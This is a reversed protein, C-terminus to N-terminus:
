RRGVTVLGNYAKITMRKNISATEASSGTKIHLTGGPCVANVGEAFTNFPRDFNGDEPGSYNFDTWADCVWEVTISADGATFPHINIRTLTEWGAYFRLPPTSTGSGWVTNDAYRLTPAGEAAVTWYDMRHPPSYAITGAQHAGNAVAPCIGVPQGGYPAGCGATGAFLGLCLACRRWSFDYPRPSGTPLHYDASGAGNHTGGRPCNSLNQTPGHFLAMCKNCIRWGSVTPISPSATLLRYDGVGDLKTHQGGLPCFGSSGAGGAFYMGACKSCYYWNNEGNAPFQADALFRPNMADDQQVHWIVLGDGAVTIDYGSGPLNRKRYELLFFENPGVNPHYLIIPANFSQSQAAPLQATGGITLWRILPESWGFQM